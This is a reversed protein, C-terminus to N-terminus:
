WVLIQLSPKVVPRIGNDDSLTQRAGTLPDLLEARKIDPLSISSGEASWYMLLHKGDPRTWAVSYFSDPVDKLQPTTGPKLSPGTIELFRALATYVPKPEGDLNLLGYHQDRPSARQDLDSLAFLFIKQYDQSAMLALRRLTYDAQGDIGILDQMEKPGAYSSWGWETAWVNKIGAGHLMTNLQDGRLLVENKGPEDTEPTMSYPHYAAVMGLNQVGLAGLAEFMLTKGRPPMQSYYAMGGMVQLKGPAAINLAQHSALLLQGYEKANVEPRWNNPLNQENWVQWADINPYRKALLALRLAYIEPDRPRYQDQFKAGKPATTIFPASGVLYFVSRIKEASLTRDLEDFTSLQYGDETPELRDWHLDVRVWQLGLKKYQTIQQRYQEPTFWLFHANVGLFDKWVVSREPALNVPQADVKESSLLAGGVAIALVLPLYRWMPRVSSINM